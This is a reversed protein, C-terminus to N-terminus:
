CPGAVHIYIPITIATGWGYTRRPYRPAASKIWPWVAVQVTWKSGNILKDASSEWQELPFSLDARASSRQLHLFTLWNLQICQTKLEAELQAKWPFALPWYLLRILSQILSKWNPILGLDESKLKAANRHKEDLQFFLVIKHALQVRWRKHPCCCNTIEM